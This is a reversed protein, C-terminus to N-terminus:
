LAAPGLVAEMERIVDPHSQRLLAEVRARQFKNSRIATLFERQKLNWALLAQDRLLSLGEEDLHQQLAFGIQLRGILHTPEVRGSWIAMRFFAALENAPLFTQVGAQAMLLWVDPQLPAGHLALKAEQLSEELSVRRM